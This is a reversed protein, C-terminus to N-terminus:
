LPKVKYQKYLFPKLFKINQSTFTPQKPNLLLKEYKVLRLVFPYELEARIDELRNSFELLDEEKHEDFVKLQIDLGDNKM